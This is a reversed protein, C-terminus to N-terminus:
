KYIRSVPIQPMNELDQMANILGALQFAPLDAVTIRVESIQGTELLRARQTGELLPTDPTLWRQGDFLLLNATFSDTLCGNKVILIDDCSGRQDFFQQLRQRDAWKFSYDLESADILKLSSIERFLHPVFETKEITEAYIVRCRFLGSSCDSPIKIVDSLDLEERIGFLRLRSQNLRRNHFELNFLRGDRLQITELLRYM